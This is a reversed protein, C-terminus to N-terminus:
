HKLEELAKKLLSLEDTIVFRVGMDKLKLLTKVDNVTYAVGDIGSKQLKEVLTTSFNDSPTMFYSFFSDPLKDLAKLSFSDLASTIDAKGGLFISVEPDYSSLITKADLKNKKVVDIIRQTNQVLDQEPCRGSDVEKIDLFFMSFWNKMKPLLVELEEIKQGDNLPCEQLEKRTLQCIDRTEEKCQTLKHLKPGHYVVIKQDKTFAIDMEAGEAGLDFAEQFAHLSNETAHETHGRHSILVVHDEEDLSQGQKKKQQEQYTISLKLYNLIEEEPFLGRGHMIEMRNLDIYGDNGIKDAINTKKQDYRHKVSRDRAIKQTFFDNYKRLVQM